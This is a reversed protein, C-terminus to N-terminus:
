CKERTSVFERTSRYSLMARPSTKYKQLLTRRKDSNYPPPSQHTKTKKLSHLSKLNLVSAVQSINTSNVPLRLRVCECHSAWTLVTKNKLFYNMLMYLLSLLVFMIAVINYHYQNILFM